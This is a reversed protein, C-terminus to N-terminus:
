TPSYIFLLIFTPLSNVFTKMLVKLLKRIEDGSGLKEWIYLIWYLSIFREGGGQSFIIVLTRIHGGTLYM